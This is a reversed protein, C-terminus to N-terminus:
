TLTKGSEIMEIRIAVNEPHNMALVAVTARGIGTLGVALAGEWRFHEVWRDSRPSFLRTMQGSVPDVGAINPGKHRNCRGCALALSEATERGGHQKPTVHEIHFKLKFVSQPLHCYECRSGARSRISAALERNM